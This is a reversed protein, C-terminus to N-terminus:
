WTYNVNLVNLFLTFIIFVYALVYCDITVDYDTNPVVKLFRLALLLDSTGCDYYM